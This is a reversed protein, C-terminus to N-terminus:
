NDPSSAATNRARPNQFSVMLGFQGGLLQDEAPVVRRSFNRSIISSLNGKRRRHVPCHFTSASHFFFWWLQFRENDSLCDLFVGRVPLVPSEFSPPLPLRFSDGSGASGWTSGSSDSSPGRRFFTFAPVPGRGVM